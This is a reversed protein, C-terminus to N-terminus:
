GNMSSPNHDLRGGQVLDYTNRAGVVLHESFMTGDEVVVVVVLSQIKDRQM